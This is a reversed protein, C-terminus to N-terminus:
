KDEDGNIKAIIKRYEEAEAAFVDNKADDRADDVFHDGRIRKTGDNM